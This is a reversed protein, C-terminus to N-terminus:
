DGPWLGPTALEILNRDPDRFFLSTSGEPWDVRSEIGVEEEGLRELWGELDGADISLAVHLEGRGDHAPIVSGGIETYNRSAGRLFLLLIQGTGVRLARFRDDGTVRPMGLAGAYFAEARDLDEVYLATELIGTLKPV